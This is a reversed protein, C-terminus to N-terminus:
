LINMGDMMGSAKSVAKRGRKAMKRMDRPSMQSAAYMGVTAGIIGGTVLSMMTSRNRDM